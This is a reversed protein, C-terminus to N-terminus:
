CANIQFDIMLKSDVSEFRLYRMYRYHINHMSQFVKISYFNRRLSFTRLIFKLDFSEIM